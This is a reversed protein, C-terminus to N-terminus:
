YATCNLRVLDSATWAVAAGSSTTQNEITVSTTSSATQRTNDARHGAAATINNVACTWGNTATPLGIIGNTATGGTGVNVIFAATGNNATISPSTGFGSSITPATASSLLNTLSFSGATLGATCIRGGNLMPGALGGLLDHCGKSNAAFSAISSASGYGNMVTGAIDYGVTSNTVSAIQCNAATGTCAFISDKMTLSAGVNGTGVQVAPTISAGVKQTIKVGELEADCSACNIVPLNSATTPNQTLEGGAIFLYSRNSGTSMLGIHTSDVGLAHEMHPSILWLNLVGTSPTYIQPLTGNGNNDVHTGVLRLNGGGNASVVIGSCTASSQGNNFIFSNSITPTEPANATATDFRVGNCANNHISSHDMTWGFADGTGSVVVGNGFGSIDAEIHVGHASNSGNGIQLGISTDTSGSNGLLHCGGFMGGQIWSGDVNNGFTFLTGTAQALQLTTASSNCIIQNQRSLLIGPPLSYTGGQIFRLAHNNAPIPVTTWTTGCNQNIWIEGATNGLDADAANVKAGCDSGSFQDAFRINSLNKANGSLTNFSKNSLTQASSLNVLTDTSNPITITATGAPINLTNGNLALSGGAATFQYSIGAFGTGTVTLTYNGPSIAFNSNGNTDTTFPNALPQTLAVDKFLANALAPSCPIGSANAACVTITANALPSTLGNVTKLAPPPAVWVGQGFSVLSCFLLFTFVAYKM